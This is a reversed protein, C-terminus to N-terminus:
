PGSEPATKDEQNNEPATEGPEPDHRHSAPGWLFCWLLFLLSLSIAADAINFTWWRELHYGFAHVDFFDVDIWDVVKGFRIRDTLNGIAGGAICGLALAFWRIDRHTWIYYVLFMFILAGMALYITPGGFNTGLAGGYNYVLTVRLLDGILRLSEGDAFRDMVWLKTAQDILAVLAAVLLAALFYDRRLPEPPQNAPPTQSLQTQDM